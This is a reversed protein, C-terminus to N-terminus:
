PVLVSTAENTVHAAPAGPTHLDFVVAAHRVSLGAFSPPLGPPLAFDCTARGRADLLGVPASLLGGGGVSVLTFELYADIVLPLVFGTGPVPLGPSTGSLSGLIAYADGAAADANSCSRRRHRSTRGYAARRGRAIPVTPTERAM